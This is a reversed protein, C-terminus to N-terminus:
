RHSGTSRQSGTTRTVHSEVEPKHQDARQQDAPSVHMRHLQQTGVKVPERSIKVSPVSRGSYREIMKPDPVRNVVRPQQEQPRVVLRELRLAGVNDATFDKAHVVSWLDVNEYREWPRPLTVGQPPLPTWCVFDDYTAWEVRAPSWQGNAPIWVWGYGSAYFWNGYHYVIWGFPEYSVWTWNPPTYDWHGFNFPAWDATVNPRWVSGYPPLTIWTGYSDLDDIGNYSSQESAPASAKMERTAGNTGCGSLSLSALAFIGIYKGTRTMLKM